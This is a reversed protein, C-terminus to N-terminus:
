GSITTMLSIGLNKLEVLLQQVQLQRHIPQLFLSVEIEAFQTVDLQDALFVFAFVARDDRADDANEVGSLLSKCGRLIIFNFFVLLFVLVLVSPLALGSQSHSGHGGGHGGLM